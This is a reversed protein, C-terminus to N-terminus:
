FFNNPKNLSAEVRNGRGEGAWPFVFFNVGILQLQYIINM